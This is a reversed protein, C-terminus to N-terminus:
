TLDEVLLEQVLLAKGGPALSILAPVQKLGLKTSLQGGQDFYFERGHERGLALPAGRVLIIVAAKNSSYDLAWAVQAEDDGDIVIWDEQLSVVDLPNVQTGLPHITKGEAQIAQTLTYSPDFIYDRAETTTRINAVPEPREVQARAQAQMKEEHAQMQGSEAMARAERQLVAVPDSEIVPYVSGLNGYDQATAFLIFSFNFYFSLLLKKV